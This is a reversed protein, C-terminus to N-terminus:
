QVKGIRRVIENLKKTDKEWFDRFEDADMYTIPSQINQMGKKFEASEVAQRTAERLVKLVSPPTGRPAFFGTWIYYEVGFGSELLTPVDPFAELRKNSTVALGRLDGSKVYPYVHNPGPMSCEVHGGLLATRAPGGGATPIHVLKIDAAKAFLETALHMIAYVGGSSYKIQNPRKKADAVFEQITKWPTNKGVVFISPDSSLLAIPAFDELRYTPPRNMLSDVEPTVSMSSLAALLTYGDPKAVGVSQIGVNGSAGTKNVIAVPQKLVKELSFAFPRAILDSVGGPPFPVIIQVPRSPYADQAQSIGPLPGNWVAWAVLVISFFGAKKM